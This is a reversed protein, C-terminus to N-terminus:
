KFSFLLLLQEKFKNEIQKGLKEVGFGYLSLFPFLWSLYPFFSPLGQCSQCTFRAPASGVTVEHNWMMVMNTIQLMYFFYQFTQLYQCIESRCVDNRMSEKLSENTIAMLGLPLYLNQKTLNWTRMAALIFNLIKQLLVRQSVDTLKLM